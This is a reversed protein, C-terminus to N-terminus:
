HNTKRKKALGEMVLSARKAASSPRKPAPIVVRVEEVQASLVRKRGKIFFAVFVVKLTVTAGVLKARYATPKIVRGHEDFAPLPAITHTREFPKALAHWKESAPWGKVTFISDVGEKGATAVEKDVEEDSSEDEVGKEVMFKHAVLISEDDSTIPLKTSPATKRMKDALGVVNDHVADFDDAFALCTEHTPKRVAFRLRTNPPVQDQATATNIATGDPHLFHNDVDVKAILLFEQHVPHQRELSELTVLCDGDTVTGPKFAVGDFCSPNGLYNPKNRIDNISQAVSAALPSDNVPTVAEFNPAAM